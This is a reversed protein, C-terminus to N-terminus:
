RVAKAPTAVPKAKFDGCNAELLKLRVIKISGLEGPEARKVGAPFVQGKQEVAPYISKAACRGMGTKQGRSLMPDYHACDGCVQNNLAM